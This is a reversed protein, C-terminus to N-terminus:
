NFLTIFLTLNLSIVFFKKFNEFFHNQDYFQMFYSTTIRLIVLTVLQIYKKSGSEEVYM